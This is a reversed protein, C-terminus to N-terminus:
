EAEKATELTNTPLLEDANSGTETNKLLLFYILVLVALLGFSVLAIGLGNPSFVNNPFILNIVGFVEIVGILVPVVFKMMIGVFGELKGFNNGDDKLEKLAQKPGIFWGVAICSLLACVPMLVTNTIIDFLSLLDTGFLTIDAAGGTSLGIPISILFTATAIIATALKRPMKFKQIIFQSAVEMISIVSTVAAIIVM